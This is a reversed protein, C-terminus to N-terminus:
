RVLPRASPASMASSASRASMGSSGRGSHGSRGSSVLDFELFAADPFREQKKCDRVQERLKTLTFGSEGHTDQILKLHRDREVPALLAVEALIHELRRNREEDAIEEPFHTIAFELATQAQKLLEEFDQATHGELFYDNVDVKYEALM